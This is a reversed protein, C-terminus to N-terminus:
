AQRWSNDGVTGDSYDPIKHAFRKDRFYSAYDLIEDVEMAYVVTNGKARPSLGVIWDGVNATRRVAPKCDALTCYGWFPNPSFGTDHTVVYSFLKM